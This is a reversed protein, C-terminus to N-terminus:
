GEQQRSSDTASHVRSTSSCVLALHGSLAQLLIRRAQQPPHIRHLLAQAAQEAFADLLPQCSGVPRRREADARLARCRCRRCVIPTRPTPKSRPCTSLRSHGLQLLQEYHQQRQLPRALM